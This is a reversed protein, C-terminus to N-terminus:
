VKPGLAIHAETRHDSRRDWRAHFL